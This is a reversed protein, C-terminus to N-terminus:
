AKFCFALFYLNIIYHNKALLKAQTKISIKIATRKLM